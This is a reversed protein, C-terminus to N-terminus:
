RGWTAATDSTGPAPFTVQQQDSGDANMTFIATGGEDLDRSFVIKKGNPSFSPQTDPGASGTLDALDRGDDADMTYIEFGGRGRRLTQFVIRRGDDSFSPHSNDTGPSRTLDVLHTGDRDAVFIDKGKGPITRTFAIREGDPSFVPESDQDGKDAPKDDAFLPFPSTGDDSNMTYIESRGGDNAVFVIKRGDPSFSPETAAGLGKQSVRELDGGDADITYIAAGDGRNAWFAIKKGDPSFSPDHSGAPSGALRVQLGGVPAVAYLESGGGAGGGRNTQFVITQAQEETPPQAAAPLAALLACALASLMLVPLVAHRRIM